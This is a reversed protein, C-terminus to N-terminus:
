TILFIIRRDDKWFKSWDTKVIVCSGGAINGYKSEFDEIDQVHSFYREYCKDSVDIILQRILAESTSTVCVDDLNEIAM